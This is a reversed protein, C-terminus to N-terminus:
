ATARQRVAGVDAGVAVITGRDISQGALWMTQPRQNAKESLLHVIAEAQRAPHVYYGSCPVEAGAVGVAALSVDAGPRHRTQQLAVVAQSAIEASACLVATFGREVFAVVDRVAAEEITADPAYRPQCLRAARTMEAAEDSVDIGHAVVIRRHGGLMMDRSLMSAGLARDILIAHTSYVGPERDVFVVRKGRVLLGRVAADPVSRSFIVAGDCGNLASPRQAVLDTVVLLDPNQQRLAVLVPSAVQDADCAVLWRRRITQNKGAESADSGRVYTGRGISRDLLGEGALDTLAKSLTKANVRFRKALQREGPLKGTLEGSAVAARLRERLRQFKYSLREQTSSSDSAISNERRNPAVDHQGFGASVEPTDSM